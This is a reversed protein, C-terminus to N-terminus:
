GHSDRENRVDREREAERRGQRWGEQMSTMLDLLERPSRASTERDPKLRTGSLQPAINTQRVRVPLGDLDDDIEPAAPPSQIPHIPKRVPKASTYSRTADFLSFGTPAAPTLLSAPLMLIATTGDYPSPRLTVKIGHRAALRSVVFIGMRDTGALDFEPPTALQANLEALVAPEVGLGCDEVEVAFGNAATLGRVQVTTNPPSFATANEVLEAILHIVDTVANGVLLPAAQMPQITVRTYDEVELAASRAVDYIPVPDRWRRGPAADSLIILNEAHRRMRTTFHDLKFLNELTDPDETKREMSDLLSLQRHLLAQNRRALNLFVQGVGRRLTAQGVAAQVATRQVDSFARAVAAVEATRASDLEPTEAPDVDEGRRLREVLRPLRVEALEVASSQLRKLEDVLSRGFRYSLVISLVVALLGLGVVLVIRLLGTVVLSEGKLTARQLDKAANGTLGTFAESADRQWDAAAVPPKGTLDWAFVADEAREFRQYAVSAALQAHWERLDPGIDRDADALQVRRSTMAAVFAAHEAQTMEGRALAPTLVAHERAAYEAVSSYATLGRLVRYSSVETVRESGGFQRQAVSIVADYKETTALPTKEELDAGARVASLGDLENLLGQVAEPPTGSVSVQGAVDRIRTVAQDTRERQAALRADGATDGATDGALEASLQRERQVEVILARAPAGVADWESRSQAFGSTEAVMSYSLFAWLAVLSILPVLLIKLIKSRIPPTSSM